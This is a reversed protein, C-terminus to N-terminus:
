RACLAPTQAKAPSWSAAWAWGNEQMKTRNKKTRHLMLYCGGQELYCLTTNKM